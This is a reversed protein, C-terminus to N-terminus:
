SVEPCSMTSNNQKTLQYSFRGWNHALCTWPSPGPGFSSSLLCEARTSQKRNRIVSTTHGAEKRSGQNGWTVTQVKLQSGLYVRGWLWKQCFIEGCCCSFFSLCRGRCLYGYNCRKRVKMAIVETWSAKREVSIVATVGRIERKMDKNWLTGACM